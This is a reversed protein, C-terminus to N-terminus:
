PWYPPLAAHTEHFLLWHARMLQLSPGSSHWMSHVPWNERAVRRALWLWWWVAEGSWVISYNKRFLAFTGVRFKVLPKSRVKAIERRVFRRCSVGFVVANVGMLGDLHGLFSRSAGTQGNAGVFAVLYSSGGCRRSKGEKQRPRGLPFSQLVSSFSCCSGLMREAMEAAPFDQPFPCAFDASRKHSLLDERM